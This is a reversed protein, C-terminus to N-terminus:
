KLGAGFLAGIKGEKEKKLKKFINDDKEKKEM